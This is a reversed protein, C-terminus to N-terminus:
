NLKTELLLNELNWFNCLRKIAIFLGIGSVGDSRIVLNFSMNFNNLIVAQEASYQFSPSLM